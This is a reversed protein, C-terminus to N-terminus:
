KQDVIEVWTGSVQSQISHDYMAECSVAPLYYRGLYAANLLVQYTRTERKNLNFYTLVRDDRIDKYTYPSSTLIGDNDNLRTNIIEWGSPFIQTLAMQEYDSRRGPNNLTVEAIFDTGQALRNPNLIKGKLTKYTISMSLIDPNNNIPPNIGSAAQGQRILRVYLQNDGQNTISFSSQQINVNVQIQSLTSSSNVTKKVGNLTYTYKMKAGSKNQGVYKALAILTYATTQTSYWADTGFKSAISTLLKSADAKRGLETLTELIMAQDRLDSGFTGGM